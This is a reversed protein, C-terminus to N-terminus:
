GQPVWSADRKERFARVGEMGEPSGFYRVSLATLADLDTRIDGGRRLL